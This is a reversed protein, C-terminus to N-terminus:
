KIVCFTSRSYYRKNCGTGLGVKTEIRKWRSDILFMSRNVGVRNAKPITMKGGPQIVILLIAVDNNADAAWSDSPSKNQVSGKGFYDGAWVTVSAKDDESKWVPIEEAWFMAFGPKVMKRSAPLNLWIQFLRLHNPKDSHVLPFMEGHVVGGGATMWQLDGEGYRGANGVSDAHDILGTTTATITEFGRHPHQPFGPILHGHYIWEILHMQISILDMEQSYLRWRVVLSM